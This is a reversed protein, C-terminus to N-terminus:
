RPTRASPASARAGPPLDASDWTTKFTSCTRSRACPTTHATRRSTTVPVSAHGAFAALRRITAVDAFTLHTLDLDVLRAGDLEISRLVQDLEHITSFDCEGHLAVRLTHVGQLTEVRLGQVGDPDRSTATHAMHLRLGARLLREAKAPKRYRTRRSRRRRPQGRELHERHGDTGRSPAVMCAEATSLTGPGPATTLVVDTPPRGHRRVAMGCPTPRGGTHRTHRSDCRQPTPRGCRARCRHFVECPARKTGALRPVSNTDTQRQPHRATQAEARHLGPHQRGIQRGGGLCATMDFDGTRPDRFLRQVGRTQQDGLQDGVRHEMSASGDQEGHRATAPTHPDLDM